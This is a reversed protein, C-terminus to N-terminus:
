HTYEYQINLELDEIELDTNENELILVYRGVLPPNTFFRVGDTHTESLKFLNGISLFYFQLGSSISSQKIEGFQNIQVSNGWDFVKHAQPFTYHQWQNPRIELYGDGLYVARIRARQDVKKSEVAMFQSKIDIESLRANFEDKLLAQKGIVFEVSKFKNLAKISDPPLTLRYTNKRIFFDSELNRVNQIFQNEIQLVVKDLANTLHHSSLGIAIVDLPDLIFTNDSLTLYDFSLKLNILSESLSNAYEAKWLEFKPILFSLDNVKNDLRILELEQLLESQAKWDNLIQQAQAQYLSVEDVIMQKELMLVELSLVLRIYNPNEAKLRDLEEKVDQSSVKFQDQRKIWENWSQRVEAFESMLAELSKTDILGKKGRLDANVGKIKEAFSRLNKSTEGAIDMNEFKQFHGKIESATKMAEELTKVQSAKVGSQALLGLVQTIPKGVPSLMLLHSMVQLEALQREAQKRAEVNESAKDRLGIELEQIQNQIDQYQNKYNSIRTSLTEIKEILLPYRHTSQEMESLAKTISNKVDSAKRDASNLNLLINELRHYHSIIGSVQSKFLEFEVAFNFIPVQTASKGALNKNTYLFREIEVFADTNPALKKINVILESLQLLSRNWMLYNAFRLQHRIFDPTVRYYPNSQELITVDAKSTIDKIETLDPYSSKGQTYTELVVCRLLGTSRNDSFFHCNNQNLPKKTVPHKFDNLPNQPHRNEHHFIYEQAVTLSEIESSINPDNTQIYGGRVKPAPKGVKANTDLIWNNFNFNNATPQSIFIRGPAGGLGPSGPAEADTAQSPFTAQGDVEIEWNSRCERASASQEGLNVKFRGVPGMNPSCTEAKIFKHWKYILPYNQGNVSIHGIINLVGSDAGQTGIKAPGGESGDTRILSYKKQSFLDKAEQEIDANLFSLSLANLFIDGGKVGKVGTTTSPVLDMQPSLLPSTNFAGVEGNLAGIILENTNVILDAGRSLLTSNLILKQTDVQITRFNAHQVYQNVQQSTLELGVIRLRDTASHYIATNLFKQPVLVPKTVRSLDLSTDLIPLTQDNFLFASNGIKNRESNSGPIPKNTENFREIIQVEKQNCALIMLLAFFTTTFNFCQFLKILNM